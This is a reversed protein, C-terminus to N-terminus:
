RAKYAVTIKADALMLQAIKEPSFDNLEISVLKEFDVDLTFFGSPHPMDQLFHLLATKSAADIPGEPLGEVARSAIDRLCMIEQEPDDENAGSLALM